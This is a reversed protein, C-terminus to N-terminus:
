ASLSDAEAPATMDLATNIAEFLAPAIIPKALHLDAGAAKAAAVHEPLANATLMIIPVRGRASAAELRRIERTATLGDMVPMQMDMLVLDFAQAGFAAVAQDGDEVSTLVAMGGGLMLEIVKRNTPHDDALLIRLGQQEADGADAAAATAPALEADPACEMPLELWFTSGEGPASACDLVGGMRTALDVCISLGLGTGGFRRTISSDAQQFRGLVKGKDSMPFGIGTDAVSFRALGEPTRQAILRIEGKDTFKIANNLLNTIIQRVRVLDGVVGRDIDPEIEVLLSVGKEDCKLQMLGAVSRLMDGAHFPAAEITLKGSEIRAMDLIDSLLRQLTDGSAQIIQAMERAKPDLDSRVLMDAVAIVGNLPTRIEHSMNALFASKATNAGDAAKRANRLQFTIRLQWLVLAAASLLVVLGLLDLRNHATIVDQQLTENRRATALQERRAGLEKQMQGTIQGIGLSFQQAATLEHADHYDALKRYAAQDQGRAQLVAAEVLPIKEFQAHAFAGSADLKRMADLDRQAAAVHGMRASAIARAPLLLPALFHAPANPAIIDLGKLCDLVASPTEGQAVIACLNQDWIRLGQLDARQTLRHHIIVLHEALTQDGLEAALETMNYIDDFDPHPYGPEGYDFQYRGFADASANLDHLEMLALGESEWIRSRATKAMPDHDDVLTEAEALRSLAEGMQQERVLIYAELSMAHVRAYWDSDGAGIAQVQGIVSSDGQDYRARLVNLKAVSEFRHNHAAAAERALLNNWTAFRDFDSQNVFLWAVHDLRHLREPAPLKLSDRGFQELQAFSTASAEAEIAAAVNRPTWHREPDQARACVALASLACVVAAGWRKNLM